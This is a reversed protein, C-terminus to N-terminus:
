QLAFRAFAYVGYIEHLLKSKRLKAFPSVWNVPSWSYKDFCGKVSYDGPGVAVTTASPVYGTRGGLSFAPRYKGCPERIEHAGPGPKSMSELFLKGDIHRSQISMKPSGEDGISRGCGYSGPGPVTCRPTSLKKISKIPISKRKRQKRDYTNVEKLAPRSVPLLMRLAEEIESNPFPSSGMNVARDIEWRTKLFPNSAYFREGSPSSRGTRSVGPDSLYDRVGKGFGRRRLKQLQTRDLSVM